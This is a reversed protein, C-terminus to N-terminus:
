KPSHLSLWLRGVAEEPTNGDGCVWGDSDKRAKWGFTLNTLTYFDEGCAEILESLSPLYKDRWIVAGM